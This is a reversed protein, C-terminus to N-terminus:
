NDFINLHANRHCLGCLARVWLTFNRMIGVKGQVHAGNGNDWEIDGNEPQKRLAAECRTEVSFRSSGFHMIRKQCSMIDSLAITPANAIDRSM